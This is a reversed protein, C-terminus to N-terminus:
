HGYPLFREATDLVQTGNIGGAVLLRGGLLLTATHGARAHHMSAVAEWRNAIPDYQETTNVATPCTGAALGGIALSKGYRLLLMRLVARPVSLSDAPTWLGTLPTYREATALTQKCDAHIGGGAVLVTGDKLLNAGHSARAGHLPGTNGWTGAGPDYLEASTLSCLPCFAYNEGGAVLVRGDRLRTASHQWRGVHLPGTFQWTGAEPDFVEASDLFQCNCGGPGGFGGTVLVQGKPLLTATHVTRSHKMRGVEKWTGHQPQYVEAADLTTSGIRGGSVLVRGDRLRVAVAGEGHSFVMAGIYEWTGSGPDYLEATRLAQTANKGGAVLVKGDLLRTATHVFRPEKLSGTQQWHEAGVSSGLAVLLLLSVVGGAGTESRMRFQTM